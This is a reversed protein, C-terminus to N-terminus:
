IKANPIIQPIDVTFLRDLDSVLDEDQESHASRNTVAVNNTESEIDWDVLDDEDTVHDNDTQVDAVDNASMVNTNGPRVVNQINTTDTGALTVVSVTFPMIGPLDNDVLIDVGDSLSDVLGCLIKGQVKDNQFDIEVLPIETPIGFIDQILRHEATDVYDQGSLTERSALTQLSSSDRLYVIDRRVGKNTFLTASDCYPAYSDHVKSM